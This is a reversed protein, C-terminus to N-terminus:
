VGPVTVSAVLNGLGSVTGYRSALYPAGTVAGARSNFIMPSPSTSTSYYLTLRVGADKTEGLATLLTQLDFGTALVNYAVLMVSATAFEQITAPTAANLLALLDESRGRSRLVMVQLKFATWLQADTRGNRPVNVIAALNDLNKGTPPTAPLLNVGNLVTWVVNEIDQVSLLCAKTLGAIKPLNRYADTLRALGEAVVATNLTPVM